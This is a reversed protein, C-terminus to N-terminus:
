HVSSTNWWYSHCFEFFILGYEWKYTMIMFRPCLVKYVHSHLVGKFYQFFHSSTKALTLMNSIPWQRWFKRYNKFILSSIDFLAMWYSWYKRNWNSYHLTPWLFSSCRNALDEVSLVSYLYLSVECFISFHLLKIPFHESLKNYFNGCPVQSFVCGNPTIQIYELQLAQLGFSTLQPM